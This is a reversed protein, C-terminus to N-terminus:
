LIVWRLMLGPDLLVLHIRKKHTWGSGPKRTGVSRARTKMNEHRVHVVIAPIRAGM